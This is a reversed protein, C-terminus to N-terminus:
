LHMKGEKLARHFFICGGAAFVDTCTTADHELREGVSPDRSTCTSLMMNLAVDVVDVEVCAVEVGILRRFYLGFSFFVFTESGDVEVEDAVSRM